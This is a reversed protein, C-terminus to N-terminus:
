FGPLTLLFQEGDPPLSQRKQIITLAIRRSKPGEVDEANLKDDEEEGEDDDEAAFDLAGPDISRHRDREAYSARRLAAASAKDLAPPSRPRATQTQTGKPLASPM